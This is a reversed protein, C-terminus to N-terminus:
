NDSNFKNIFTELKNNFEFLQLLQNFSNFIDPDLKIATSLHAEAENELGTYYYFTGLLFNIGPIDGTARNARELFPISKEIMKESVIIKGLEIWADNFYPDIKLSERFCRLARKPNNNLLFAKGSLFWIEANDSSNEAAKRLCALSKDANGDKLEVSGLGIWADAFDQDIEVAEYYYKRALEYNGSKEYCEGLFTLVEFNDQDDQLYEKFVQIAEEYRAMNLLVLGKGQLALEDHSNLALAFDYAEIAEEYKRIKFYIMALNNWASDSYPDEDLYKNYYNISKEFDGIKELAYAIDFLHEPFDPEYEILRELYPIVQRFYNLNQLVSSISYLINEIDDSDKTLAVDFMKLAGEIDGMMALGTGKAIFIEHNWPELMELRKLIRLSEEIRGRDLLVKANRLQLPVSNPHQRSAISAAEFAKSLNNREIYYDIITEFDSVDFFYNENNRKMREFRQIVRNIDEEERSYRQREEEMLLFEAEFNISNKVM